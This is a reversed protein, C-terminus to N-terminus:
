SETINIDLKAGCHQCTAYIPIALKMTIYAVDKKDCEPCAFQHTSIKPLAPLNRLQKYASYALDEFNELENRSLSFGEEHVLKNRITAVTRLEKVLQPDLIPAVSSTKEHLGKGIAGIKSLRGELDKCNEIVIEYASKRPAQSPPNSRAPYGISSTLTAKDAKSFFNYVNTAFQVKYYILGAVIGVGMGLIPKHALLAVLILVFAGILFFHVVKQVFNLM